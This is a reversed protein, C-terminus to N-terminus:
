LQCTVVVLQLLAVELIGLIGAQGEGETLLEQPVAIELQTPVEGLIEVHVELTGGMGLYLFGIGRHVFVEIGIAIGCPLVGYPGTDLM